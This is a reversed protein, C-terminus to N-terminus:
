NPHLVKRGERFRYYLVHSKLEEVKITETAYCLVLKPPPKFSFSVHVNKRKRRCKPDFKWWKWLPVFDSFIRRYSLWASFVLLPFLWSRLLTAPNFKAGNFWGCSRSRCSRLHLFFKCVTCLGHADDKAVDKMFKEELRCYKDNWWSRKECIGWWDLKSGEWEGAVEGLHCM